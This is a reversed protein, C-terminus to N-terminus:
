LGRTSYLVNAVTAHGYIAIASVIMIAQLAICAAGGAVWPGVPAGTTGSPMKKSGTFPRLAFSSVAVFAMMVPLFRGAGWTPSWKQVLVDFLAYTCATLLALIITAGASRHSQAGSFNLLAIAASSLIAATWLRFGIREGILATTLLAVIPIKSG